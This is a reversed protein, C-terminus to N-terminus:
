PLVRQMFLLDLWRDFKYGVERLVAARTFGLREHFRISADNAADIGAIMMHKGCAAARALLVLMLERGIGRSRCDQRVHVTHEVTYRYGPWSRFDGFTAFGLIDSADGAVLVPYGQATRTRWWQLRDALTVPTDSYVATSNAIIDNYIQLVGPLDEAAADRVHTGHAASM